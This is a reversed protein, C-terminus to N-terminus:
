SMQRRFRRVGLVAAVIMALIIVDLGLQFYVLLRYEALGRAGPSVALAM